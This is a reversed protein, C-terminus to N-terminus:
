QKYETNGLILKIEDSKKDKIFSGIKACILNVLPEIALRNAALLMEALLGLKVDLFDAETKTVFERMISSTLPKPIRHTTQDPHLKMYYVVKEFVEDTIEEVTFEKIDENNEYMAKFVDSKLAASIPIKYETNTKKSKFIVDNDGLSGVVQAMRNSPFQNRTHDKNKLPSLLSTEKDKFVCTYIFLYIYERHIFLLCYQPM